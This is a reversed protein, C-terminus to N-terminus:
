QVIQWQGCPQRCAKGYAKQKEGGIFIEQTYERCYRGKQKFTRTPTVSGYNGSDPNRWEVSNGSPTFELAQQSTKMLIAKDYEDLTQGIGQGVIAGAFAGLGAGLVKDDSMNSGILAGTLGGLFLGQEQKSINSCSHLSFSLISVFILILPSINKNTNSLISINHM